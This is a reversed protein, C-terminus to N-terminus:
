SDSSFGLLEVFEKWNTSAMWVKKQLHLTWGLAEASNSMRSADFSYGRGKDASDSCTLHNWEWDIVPWLPERGLNIVRLGGGSEVHETRAEFEHRAKLWQTERATDADIEIVAEGILAPCNCISCDFVM